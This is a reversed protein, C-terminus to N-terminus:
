HVQFSGSDPVQPLVEGRLKNQVSECIHKVSDIGIFRELDKAAVANHMTQRKVQIWAHADHGNNDTFASPCLGGVKCRICFYNNCRTSNCTFCKAQELCVRGASLCCANVLQTWIDLDNPVAMKSASHLDYVTVM